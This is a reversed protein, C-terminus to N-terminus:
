ELWIIIQDGPGTLKSSISELPIRVGGSRYPNHERIFDLAVGNLHVSVPGCGKKKIHYLIEIRGGLLDIKAKLGDLAVPVVPDVKSNGAISQFPFLAANNEIFRVARSTILDTMYGTDSVALLCAARVGRRAAQELAEIFYFVYAPGSGSVATVADLDHESGVWFTDGVAALIREADQKQTESVGPMAHLGTIGASVLAPTNPMARVIRAAPGLWRALDIGRIGAAISIVLKGAIAPALSRAVDRLQQPKVALVICDANRAAAAGDGSTRIGFQQELRKLAEPLVDVAHIAAAPWNKAILGGIIAAAMNGGGIFLINM